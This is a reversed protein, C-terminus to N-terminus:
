VVNVHHAAASAIARQPCLTVLTSGFKSGVVKFPKESRLNALGAAVVCMQNTSLKPDPYVLILGDHKNVVKFCTQADPQLVICKPVKM